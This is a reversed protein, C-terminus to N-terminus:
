RTVVVTADCRWLVGGAVRGLTLDAFGGGGRAGLVVLDHEAAQALLTRTVGGTLVEGRIKVDPFERAVDAVTSDLAGAAQSRDRGSGSPDRQWVHVALVDSGTADADAAAWRLAGLDDFRDIGVLVSGRPTDREPRVVAVPCAAHIAVQHATSGLSWRLMSDGHSGLVVLRSVRSATVLAAAPFRNTSSVSVYLDPHEALVKARAQELRQRHLQNMPRSDQHDHDWGDKSEPSRAAVLHLPAEWATARGVAWALAQRSDPSPDLGVVVGDPRITSDM